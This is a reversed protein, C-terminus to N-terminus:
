SLSFPPYEDVVLYTYASVRTSLRIAGMMFDYMGEPWRGTFLVVFFGALAVFTAAFWVVAAFLAIPIALLFRFGVTLRNRNELEAGIEVRVPDGGPDTPTMEYEFVPYPERLWYMYSNVRAQYRIVMCQYNALGESLRGTFVIVFWAIVSIIGAVWGLVALIFWHPIVLLWHVLPRWNAIREPMQLEVSVPYQVPYPMAM